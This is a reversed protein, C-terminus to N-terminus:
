KDLQPLRSRADEEEPDPGCGMLVINRLVVCVSPCSGLRGNLDSRVGIVSPIQLRHIGPKSVRCSSGRSHESTPGRPRCLKSCRLSSWMVSYTPGPDKAIASHVRGPCWPLCSPDDPSKSDLRICGGKRAHPSLRTSSKSDPFACSGHIRSIDYFEDRGDTTNPTKYRKAKHYHGSSVAVLVAM